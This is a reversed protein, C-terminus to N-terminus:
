PALEAGLSTALNQIQTNTSSSSHRKNLIFRLISELWQQDAYRRAATTIGALLAEWWDSHSFVELVEEPKKEWTGCWLMPHVLGVMQALWFGKEGISKSEPGGAAAAAAPASSTLEPPIHNAKHWEELDAPLFVEIKPKTFRPKKYIILAKTLESVRARLQSDPLRLLLDLATRRVEPSRDRAAESLFPEDHDSLGVVFIELFAQRDKVSESKWTTHLLTRARGPDSARLSRLLVLREDRQGTEWAGAEQGATTTTTATAAIRRAWGWEPNQEALWHGRSGVVERIVPRLAPWATGKELLPPLFEEAVRLNAEELALLWEPLIEKFEGGLMLM